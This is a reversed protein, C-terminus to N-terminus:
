RTFGPPACTSCKSKQDLSSGYVRGIRALLYTLHHDASRCVSSRWQAMAASVIPRLSIPPSTRFSFFFNFPHDSSSPHTSTLVTLEPSFRSLRPSDLFPGPPQSQLLLSLAISYQILHGLLRPSARQERAVYSVHGVFPDMQWQEVDNHITFVKGIGTKRM